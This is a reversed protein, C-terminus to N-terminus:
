NYDHQQQDADGNKRPLATRPTLAAHLFPAAASAAEIATVFDGKMVSIRMAWLLVDIPRCASVMEATLRESTCGRPIM